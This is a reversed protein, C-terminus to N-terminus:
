PNSLPGTRKARIYLAAKAEPVRTVLTQRAQVFRTNTWSKLGMLKAVDAEADTFREGDATLLGIAWTRIAVIRDQKSATGPLNLHWQQQDRAIADYLSALPGEPLLPRPAKIQIFSRPAHHTPTELPSSPAPKQVLAMSGQLELHDVPTPSVEAIVRARFDEDLELIPDPPFYLRGRIHQTLFADLETGSVTRSYVRIELTEGGELFIVEIPERLPIRQRNRFRNWVFPPLQDTIHKAAVL